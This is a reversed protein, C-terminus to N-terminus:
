PHLEHDIAARLAPIGAAGKSLYVVKGDSGLLYFMPVGDVVYADRVKTGSIEVLYTWSSGLQQRMLRTKEITPQGLHPDGPVVAVAITVITVNGGYDTQLADMSPGISLCVSANPHVFEILVPKSYAM